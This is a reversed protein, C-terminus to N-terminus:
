IVVNVVKLEPFKLRLNKVDSVNQTERWFNMIEVIYNLMKIKENYSIWKKSDLEIKLHDWANTRPWIYYPTLPLSFNESVQDIALGLFGEVCFVKLELKPPVM